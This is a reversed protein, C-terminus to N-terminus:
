NGLRGFRHDADWSLGTAVKAIRVEADCPAVKQADATGGNEAHREARQERQARAGRGAACRAPALRFAHHHDIQLAPRAM